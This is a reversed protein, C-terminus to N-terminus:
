QLGARVTRERVVELLWRKADGDGTWLAPGLPSGLFIFTGQGARRRLAVPRGDVWGISQGTPRDLPIVRSFDRLKTAFPWSYDVYPTRRPWLQVPASVRVAFSDCLAARHARLDPESAFAAGSELIVLGGAHMSEVMRRM